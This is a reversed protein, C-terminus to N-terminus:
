RGSALRFARLLIRKVAPRTADLPADLRISRMKKGSGVLLGSGDDLEVGRYFYLLVHTSFTGIGAVEEGGLDYRAIKWMSRSSRPPKSQYAIERAAPGAAKLAKRAAQATARVKPALRGLHDAVTLMADLGEM